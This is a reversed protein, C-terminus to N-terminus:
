KLVLTPLLIIYQKTQHNSWINVRRRRRGGVELIFGVAAGRNWDWERDGTEGGCRQMSGNDAAGYQWDDWRQKWPQLNQCTNGGLHLHHSSTTLGTIDHWFNCTCYCRVNHYKDTYNTSPPHNWRRILQTYMLDGRIPRGHSPPAM